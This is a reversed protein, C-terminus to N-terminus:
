RERDDRTAAEALSTAVARAVSERLGDHTIRALERAISEPLEGVRLRPPPGQPRIPEPVEPLKGMRFTIRQVNVDTVRMRLKSIIRTSEYSLANAWAATTTHVNLVGQRFAVPRANRWIREPVVRSWAGLLRMARVEEPQEAPYVKPVLASLSEM